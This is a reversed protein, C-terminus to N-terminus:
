CRLSVMMVALSTVVAARQHSRMGPLDLLTRDVVSAFIDFLGGKIVTESTRLTFIADSALGSM